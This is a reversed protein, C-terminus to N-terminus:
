LWEELVPRLQRKVARVRTKVTNVNMGMVAAIQGYRLNEFYKLYAIQRDEPDLSVLSQRVARDVESRIAMMGPDNRNDPHYEDLVEHLRRTRLHDICHNRAIRFAWAEFSRLPDYHGLNEFIKTAVDQFLDEFHPHEAPVIQAIFYSIRKGFEAWIRTFLEKRQGEDLSGIRTIKHQEIFNMMGAWMQIYYHM